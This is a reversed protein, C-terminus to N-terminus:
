WLTNGRGYKGMTRPQNSSLNNIQILFYPNHDWRSWMVLKRELGNSELSLIKSKLILGAYTSYIIYIYIYM